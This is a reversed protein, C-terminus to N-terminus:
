PNEWLNNPSGTSNIENGIWYNKETIGKTDQITTTTGTGVGKWFKAVNNFKYLAYLKVNTDSITVNEDRGYINCGLITVNAVISISLDGENCVGWIYVIGHAENVNSGSMGIITGGSINVNGSVNIDNYLNYVGAVYIPITSSTNSMTNKVNANSIGKIEGGLITFTGNVNKVGYVHCNEVAVKTGIITGSNITTSGNNYVGYISTQSSNPTPTTGVINTSNSSIGIITGGNITTSGTAVYVGCFSGEDM